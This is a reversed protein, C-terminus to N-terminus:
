AEARMKLMQKETIFTAGEFKIQYETGDVNIDGKETFCINDKEWEQGFYETILKEFIEGKNYKSEAVLSKFMEASCLEIVTGNAILDLKNGTNPKFRLSMGAGRSAKDLKLVSLAVEADCVVAWIRKKYTFGMIYNHAGAKDNYFRIMTTKM